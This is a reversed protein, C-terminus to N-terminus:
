IIVYRHYIKQYSQLRSGGKGCSTCSSSTRTNIYTNVIKFLILAGKQTFYNLYFKLSSLSNNAFNCTDWTVNQLVVSLYYANTDLPISLIINDWVLIRQHKIMQSIIRILIYTIKFWSANVRPKASSIIPNWLIWLDRSFTSIFLLM